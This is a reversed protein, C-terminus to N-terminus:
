RDTSEDTLPGLRLKELEDKMEKLRRYPAKLTDRDWLHLERHVAATRDALPASSITREWAATVVDIITQEKLWRAEFCKTGEKAYRVEDVEGDIDLVIPRHDSKSHEANIVKANPFLGHLEGNCVGRDLRERLRRRRWTFQDGFFGIDELECDVLADHFQQMMQM